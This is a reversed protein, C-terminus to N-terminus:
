ATGQKKFAVGIGSGRHWHLFNRDTALAFRLLEDTVQSNDGLIIANETLKGKIIGYENAEYTASHDSDNIFLDIPQAFKQLSEISDGYLIEGYDTYPTKFLYGARPNIDTGYYYGAHGEAQNRM